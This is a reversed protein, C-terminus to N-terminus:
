KRSKGEQKEEDPFLIAYIVAALPVGLLLGTMGFLGGGIVISSLVWTPPLGISNGVIRPYILNSEIQQLVTIYIIFWIVARPQVMMLLIVCPVAGALPGIYPVVNTIGVTVSILAPYPFHFLLMGLYCLVGLICAEKCQSSVFGAFTRCTLRARHAARNMTDPQMFKGCIQTLQKRLRPKDALLYLSFVAGIGIDAICRLFAATHGYASRLLAPLKEELASLISKLQEESVFKRATEPLLTLWGVLNDAYISFHDAFLTLSREIQPVLICLGGCLILVAPAVTCVLAAPRIWAADPNRGKKRAFARIDAHLRMFAPNLLTAILVGILLPRLVRLVKCVAAFFGEYRLIVFAALLLVTGAAVIIQFLPERLIKLPRRLLDCGGKKM